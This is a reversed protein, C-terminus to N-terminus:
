GGKLIDFADGPEVNARFLGRGLDALLHQTALKRLIYRVFERDSATNALSGTTIMKRHVDAVRATEDPSNYVHGWMELTLELVRESSRRRAPADLEVAPVHPSEDGNAAASSLPQGDFAALAAMRRALAVQAEQISEVLIERIDADPRM